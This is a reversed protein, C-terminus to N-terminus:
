ESSTPGVPYTTNKKYLDDTLLRLMPMLKLKRLISYIFIKSISKKKLFVCTAVMEIHHEVRGVLQEKKLM